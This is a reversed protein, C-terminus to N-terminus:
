HCREFTPPFSSHLPLYPGYHSSVKSNVKPSVLIAWWWSCQLHNTCCRCCYWVHLHLPVILSIDLIRATNTRSVMDPDNFHGPGAARVMVDSSSNRAWFDITKTVSEWSDNIDFYNRWVNCTQKIGNNLFDPIEWHHHREYYDNPWSCSYLIPRGTANLARGFQPYTTNFMNEDANCADVKISDIEWEKLTAADLEFHGEFGPYGECTAAGIDGYLGLKLHLSHLINSLYKIGRPFRMKDAVLKGTFPDRKRESWCDDINMYVYGADRFGLDVMFQAQELYLDESICRKPFLQCDTQCGFREWSLWGMPPTLAVGNDLAQSRYCLLLLLCQLISLCMVQRYNHHNTVFMIGNVKSAIMTM